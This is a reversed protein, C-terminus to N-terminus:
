AEAALVTPEGGCNSDFMAAIEVAEAAAAGMAMAGIAFDSGSGIAYFQCQIPGSPTISDEYLFVEGSPRVLLARLDPKDGKWAEADAGAKFWALFKEPEGLVASVIGLRSGDDLRHAKHKRGPSYQGRGGYARSDAAMVGDKFAVVSVRAAGAQGAERV